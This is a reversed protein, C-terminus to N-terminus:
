TVSVGISLRMNRFIGLGSNITHMYCSKNLKSRFEIIILINHNLFQAISDVDIHTFIFNALTIITLRVRVSLRWIEVFKLIKVIWRDPPILHFQQLRSHLLPNMRTGHKFLINTTHTHTYVTCHLKVAKRGSIDRQKQWSIQKRQLMEAILWM